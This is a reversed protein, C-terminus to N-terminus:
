GGFGLGRDGLGNGGPNEWGGPLLLSLWFSSSSVVVVRVVIVGVVVTGCRLVGLQGMEMAQHVVVVVVVVVM